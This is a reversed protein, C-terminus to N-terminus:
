LKSGKHEPWESYFDEVAQHFRDNAGFWAQAGRSVTKITRYMARRRAYLDRSFIPEFHAVRNRLDYSMSVWETLTNPTISYLNPFADILAEDWLKQKMADRRSPLLYRWTGLSLQALVDDHTIDRKQSRVAKRADAEADRLKGRGDLVGRLLPVPDLSWHQSGNHRSNWGRLQVDIANRLGVEVM